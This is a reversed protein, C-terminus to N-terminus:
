ALKDKLFEAYHQDTVRIHKLLWQTLFRIINDRVGKLGLDQAQEFNRVKKVFEWHETQHGKLGPYGHTELLTEEADFHVIAYDKLGEIVTRVKNQDQGAMTEDLDNILDILRQHQLDIEPIHVSLSEDWEIAKM